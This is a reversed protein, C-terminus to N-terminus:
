GRGTSGQLSEVFGRAMQQMAQAQYDNMEDSYEQGVRFLGANRKLSQNLLNSLTRRKAERAERKSQALGAAGQMANSAGAGAGSIIQSWDAAEGYKGKSKKGGNMSPPPSGTRYSSNVPNSM